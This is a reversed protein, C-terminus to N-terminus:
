VEGRIRKRNFEEQLNEIWEIQEATRDLLMYKCITDKGSDMMFYFSEPGIQERKYIKRISWNEYTKHFYVRRDKEPKIFNIRRAIAIGVREDNMNRAIWRVIPTGEAPSGEHNLSLSGPIKAEIKNPYYKVESTEEDMKFKGDLSYALKLVAEYKEDRQMSRDHIIDRLRLM